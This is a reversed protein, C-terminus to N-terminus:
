GFVERHDELLSSYASFRDVVANLRADNGANHQVKAQASPFIITSGAPFPIILKLDYLIFHGGKNHDFDGLATVVCPVSASDGHDLHDSTVTQLGFNVTIGPYV